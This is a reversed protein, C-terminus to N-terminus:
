KKGKNKKEEKLISQFTKGMALHFIRHELLEFKDNFDKKFNRVITYILGVIAVSFGGVTWFINWDM